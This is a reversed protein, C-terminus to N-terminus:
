ILVITLLYPAQGLFYPFIPIWVHHIEFIWSKVWIEMMRGVWGLGWYGEPLKNCLEQFNPGTSITSKGM